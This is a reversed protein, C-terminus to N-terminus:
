LFIDINVVILDMGNKVKNKGWIIFTGNKIDKYNIISMKKGKPRASRVADAENRGM